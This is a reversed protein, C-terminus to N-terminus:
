FIPDPPAVCNAIKEPVYDISLVVGDKDVVFARDIRPVTSSRGVTQNLALAAADQTATDMAEFATPRQVRLEVKLEHHASSMDLVSSCMRPAYRALFTRVTDPVSLGATHAEALVTEPLVVIVADANVTIAPNGNKADATKPWVTALWDARAPVALAVGVAITALVKHMRRRM